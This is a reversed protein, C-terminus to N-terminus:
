GPRGDWTNGGDSSRFVQGEDDVVMVRGPDGPSVAVGLAMVNPSPITTWSAGRDTSRVVGVPTGAYIVEPDDPSVALNFFTMKGPQTELLTWTTGHDESRSIGVDTAAYLSERNSALVLWSGSGEPQNGFPQWTAGGDSSTWGGFGVIFAYLRQPDDPHQAFGHIDSGPLDHAIGSWTAGRDHSVQLVDHGAAYITEPEAPSTALIMADVGILSGPSWSLGGDDSQQIGAHSGFLVRDPTEADILLAHYDPAEVVSIAVAIQQEINNTNWMWFVM